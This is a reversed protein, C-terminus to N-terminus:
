QVFSACVLLSSRRAMAVLVARVICKSEVRGVMAVLRHYPSVGFLMCLVLPVEMYQLVVEVEWM